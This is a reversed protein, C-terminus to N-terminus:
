RRSSTSARGEGMRGAVAGGPDVHLLELKDPEVLVQAEAGVGVGREQPCPEGGARAAEHGATRAADDVRAPRHRPPAPDVVEAALKREVRTVHELEVREGRRCLTPLAESPRADGHHRAGQAGLAM